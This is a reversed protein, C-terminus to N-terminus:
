ARRGKLRAVAPGIVPEAEHGFGGFERAFLGPAAFAVGGPTARRGIAPDVEDALRKAARARGATVAPEAAQRLAAALAAGTLARANM